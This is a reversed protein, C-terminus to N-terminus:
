ITTKKRRYLAPTLGFEKKFIRIFHPVNEYGCAYAIEAVRQNTGNLLTQAHKLRQQNIWSRPSSQYHIAFDRKFAAASRGSLRALESITIPQFLYKRVIHDMQLPAGDVISGIFRLLEKKYQNSLLLLFLEELKVKLIYELNNLTACIYSKYHLKFGDLLEDSPVVMYPKEFDPKGPTEFQLHIREFFEDPIFILLAEFRDEDPIYESMSYIGRKLLAVESSSIRPTEASFHILKEGKLVFLLTHETLFVNKSGEMQDIAFLAAPIGEFSVIKNKRFNPVSEPFRLM